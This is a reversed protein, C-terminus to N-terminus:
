RRQTHRIEYQADEEAVPTLLIIYQAKPQGLNMEHLNYEVRLRLFHNRGPLVTIEREIDRPEWGKANETLGTLRIRHQGPKLELPLYRNYAITGVSRGDIFVEPYSLRLPKAVGPTSAAPRYLYLMANGSVAPQEPRFVPNACGALLLLAVCALKKLVGNM